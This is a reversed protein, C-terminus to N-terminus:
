ATSILMSRSMSPLMIQTTELRSIAPWSSTQWRDHWGLTSIAYSFIWCSACFPKPAMMCSCSGTVWAISGFLVRLSRFRAFNVHLRWLTLASIFFSSSQLALHFLIKVVELSSASDVGAVSFMVTLKTPGRSSIELFAGSDMIGQGATPTGETVAIM